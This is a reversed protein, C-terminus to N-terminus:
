CTRLGLYVFDISQGNQSPKVWAWKWSIEWM